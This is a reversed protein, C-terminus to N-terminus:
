RFPVVALEARVVLCGCRVETHCHEWPNAARAESRVVILDFVWHHQHLSGELFAWNRGCGLDAACQSSLVPEQTSEGCGCCSSPSGDSTSRVLARRSQPESLNEGREPWGTVGTVTVPGGRDGGCAGGAWGMREGCKPERIWVRVERPIVVPIM